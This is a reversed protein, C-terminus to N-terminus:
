DFLNNVNKKIYTNLGVGNSALMKMNEVHTRGAKLYSYKYIKVTGNFKVKINDSGVEYAVVGSNSGRNLYKEM